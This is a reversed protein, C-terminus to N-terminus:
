LYVVTKKIQEDTSPCKSQEQRKTLPMLSLYHQHSFEYWSKNSYRDETRKSIYRSTSNSPGPLETATTTWDRVRQSGHVASCRAERDKVIERFKSLSMDLSILWIHHWHHWGIMENETMGKEEQGWNEGSDPDKGPLRSKVDLPWLIQADSRGIFIWPQSGKPNVPKIEM